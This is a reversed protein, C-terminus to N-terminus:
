PASTAPAPPDIVPFVFSFGQAKLQDILLSLAAATAFRNNSGGDHMLIISGDDVQAGLNGMVSEPTATKQWDKTDVKWYLIQEGNAVATAKVADSLMGAPPRYYDPAALGADTFTKAGGGIEADLRPTAARDLREDHNLTHNCLQHGADLVQRSMAADTRVQRGIECFTAEVGKDALIQLIVPTWIPSPGDDFTLAVVHQTTQKPAVPEQVVRDAVVEGSRTGVEQRRLGPIGREAVHRLVLAMPPPAIPGDVQRTTEIEDRGNIVQLEDGPGLRASRDVVQGDLLVAAPHLTPELVSRTKASLLKGDRSTAGSVALADTVDDGATLRVKQTRDGVVVPVSFTRTRDHDMQYGYAAVAGIVGLGM